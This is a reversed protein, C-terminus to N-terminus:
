RLDEVTVDGFKLIKEGRHDRMFEKAKDTSEIPVLESGMPGNVDSGKIFFLGRADMMKTSYYETVFVAAIDSQKKAAGYKGPNLYYRFMDKPGDFAAYTGDKFVIQSMWDKYGYVLMGCVPCKDNKKIEAPKVDAAHSVSFLFLFSSIIIFVSVASIIKKMTIEERTKLIM